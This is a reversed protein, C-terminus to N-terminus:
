ILEGLQSLWAPPVSLAPLQSEKTLAQFGCGSLFLGLASRLRLHSASSCFPVHLQWGRHPPLFLLEEHFLAARFLAPSAQQSNGTSM